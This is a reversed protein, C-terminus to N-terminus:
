KKKILASPDQLRLNNLIESVGEVKEGNKDQIDKIISWSQEIVSLITAIEILAKNNPDPFLISKYIAYAESLAEAYPEYKDKIEISDALLKTKYYKNLKKFLKPSNKSKMDAIMQYIIRDIQIRIQNYNGLAKNKEYTQITTDSQILTYYAETNYKIEILQSVLGLNTLPKSFASINMLLFLSIILTKKM